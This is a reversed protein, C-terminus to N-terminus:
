AKINLNSMLTTVSSLNGNLTGLYTDLQAYTNKYTTTEKDIVAQIDQIKNGLKKSQDTLSNMDTQLVGNYSTFKSMLTNISASNILKDSIISLGSTNTNFKSQDFTLVGTKDFSLGASLLSSSYDGSTLEKRFNDMFTLVQRDKINSNKIDTNTTNYQKTFNNMADVIKAKDQQISVKQSSVLKSATFELGDSVKFDNTKSTINVGNVTAIGDQATNISQYNTGGISITLDGLSSDSSNVEFANDAGSSISSLSLYQGNSGNLVTAKVDLGAGNIRDRVNQLTDTSSINIDATKTTNMIGSSKNGINITLKGQYGLAGSSFNKNLTTIQAQALQSVDINYNGVQGNVFNMGDPTNSYSYNNMAKKINDMSDQLASFSAKVKGLGSISTNVATYQKQQINLQTTKAYLAQQVLADINIYNGTSGSTSSVSM